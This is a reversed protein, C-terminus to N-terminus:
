HGFVYCPATSTTSAFSEWSQDTYAVQELDALEVTYAKDYPGGCEQVFGVARAKFIERPGSDSWRHIIVWNFPVDPAIFWLGTSGNRDRVIKLHQGNTFLCLAKEGKILLERVHTVMKM